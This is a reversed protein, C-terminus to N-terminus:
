NDIANNFLKCVILMQHIIEVSILMLITNGGEFDNESVILFGSCFGFDQILVEEPIENGGSEIRLKRDSYKAQDTSHVLDDFEDQKIDRKKNKNM